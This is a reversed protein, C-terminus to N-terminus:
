DRSEEEHKWGKREEEKIKEPNLESLLYKLKEIAFLSSEEIRFGFKESFRYARIIRLPDEKIRKEPDGIFRILKNQLDKKGGCYDLLRYEEDLYMGNITFDRRAYDQEPDKIFTISSPHRHDNYEGEIRLTTVDCKKGNVKVRIAGFKAFVYDAYPLFARSEDPTADTVFDEDDLPLGLFLDRVTGGVIYLRYGHENYIKKLEDFYIDKM